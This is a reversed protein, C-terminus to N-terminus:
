KRCGRLLRITKQHLPIYLGFSQEIDKTRM